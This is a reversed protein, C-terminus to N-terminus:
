RTAACCHISAIVNVGAQRPDMAQVDEYQAVSADYRRAYLLM